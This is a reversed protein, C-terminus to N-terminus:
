LVNKNKVIKDIRYVKKLEAEWQLCNEDLGTIEKALKKISIKKM